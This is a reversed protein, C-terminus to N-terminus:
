QPAPEAPAPFQSGLSDLPDSETGSITFDILDLGDEEGAFQPLNSEITNLAMRLTGTLTGDRKIEIKGTLKCEGHRVAKINELVFSDNTRRFNATVQRFELKSYLESKFFKCLAELGPFKEVVLGDM